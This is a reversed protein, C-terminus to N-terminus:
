NPFARAGQNPGPRKKIKAGGAPTLRLAAKSCQLMIAGLYPLEGIENVKSCGISRLMQRRM